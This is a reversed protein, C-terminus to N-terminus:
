RHFFMQISSVRKYEINSSSHLHFGPVQLLLKMITKLINKIDTKEGSHPFSLLQNQRTLISGVITYNELYPFISAYFLCTRSISLYRGHVARPRGRRAPAAAAPGRRARRAPAGGGPGGARRAAARVAGPDHATHLVM